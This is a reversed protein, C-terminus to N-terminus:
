GNGELAKVLEWTGWVRVEQSGKNVLNAKVAETPARSPYSVSSEFVLHDQCTSPQPTPLGHVGINFHIGETWDQDRWM